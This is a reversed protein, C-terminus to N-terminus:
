TESEEGPTVGILRLYRDRPEAKRWHIGHRWHFWFGHLGAIGLSLLGLLGYFFERGLGQRIGLLLISLFALKLLKRPLSIHAEYGHFLWQGLGWGGLFLALDLWFAQPM